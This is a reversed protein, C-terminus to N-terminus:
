YLETRRFLNNILLKVLYASNLKDHLKLKIMERLLWIYSSKKQITINNLYLMNITYPTFQDLRKSCVEIVANFSSADSTIRSHIGRNYNVLYQNANAAEKVNNKEMVTLWYDWDQGSKLNEDFYCGRVVESNLMVFSCSGLCNCYLLKKYTIIEPYRRYHKKGNIISICNSTVIPYENIYKLQLEIKMPLWIDDDDLFSIVNGKAESLGVNRSYPAGKSENNKIYKIPMGSLINKTSNTESDDIVIIEIDKYTQNLVSNIARIVMDPRNKTPIICSVLPASISM